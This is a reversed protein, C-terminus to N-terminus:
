RATAVAAETTRSGAFWRPNTVRSPMAGASPSGTNGACGFEDIMRVLYCYLCEHERIQTLSQSLLRITQEAEIGIDM